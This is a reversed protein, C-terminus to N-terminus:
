RDDGSAQHPTAVPSLSTWDDQQLHQPLDVGADLALGLLAYVPVVRDHDHDDDNDHDHNHNDGSPVFSWGHALTSANILVVVM